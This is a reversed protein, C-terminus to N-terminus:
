TSIRFACTQPYPRLNLFYAPALRHPQARAPPWIQAQAPSQPQAQAPAKVQPAAPKVLTSTVHQAQATATKTKTQAQSGSPTQDAFKWLPSKTVVPSPFSDYDELEEQAMLLENLVPTGSHDEQDSYFIEGESSIDEIQPPEPVLTDSQARSQDPTIEQLIVGLQTLSSKLVQDQIIAKVNQGAGDQTVTPPAM